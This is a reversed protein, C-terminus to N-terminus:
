HAKVFERLTCALKREWFTAVKEKDFLDAVRLLGERMSNHLDPNELLYILEDAIRNPDLPAFLCNKGHILPFESATVYMKWFAGAAVFPLGALVYEATKTGICYGTKSIQLGASALRLWLPMQSHPVPPIVILKSRVEKGVKKLFPLLTSLNGFVIFKYNYGKVNVAEIIKLLTPLVYILKRPNEPFIVYKVAPKLGYTSRLSSLEDDNISRRFFSSAITNTFVIKATKFTKNVYYKIVPDPPLVVYEPRKIKYSLILLAFKLVRSFSRGSLYTIDMTMIYPKRKILALLACLLQPYPGFDAIFLDFKDREIKALLFLLPLFLYYITMLAPFHMFNLYVKPKSPNAFNSAAEKVELYKFYKFGVPIIPPYVIYLNDVKRYIPSCRRQSPHLYVITTSFKKMYPALTQFFWFEHGPFDALILLHPM